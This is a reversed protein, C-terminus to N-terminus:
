DHDITCQADIGLAELTARIVAEARQDASLPSYKYNWTSCRQGSPGRKGLNALRFTSHDTEWAPSGHNRYGLAAMSAECYAAIHLVSSECVGGYNMIWACIGEEGDPLITYDGGGEDQVGWKLANAVTFIAVQIPIKVCESHTLQKM